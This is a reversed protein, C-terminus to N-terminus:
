MSTPKENNASASWIVSSCFVQSSIRQKFKAYREEALGPVRTNESSKLTATMLKTAHRCVLTITKYFQIGPFHSIHTKEIASMFISWPPIKSHERQYQNVQKRVSPWFSLKGSHCQSAELYLKCSNSWRHLTKASERNETDYFQCFCDNTSFFLFFLM